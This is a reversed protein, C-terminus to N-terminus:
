KTGRENIKRWLRKYWPTAYEKMAGGLNEIASQLSQFMVRDDAFRDKDSIADIKEALIANVSNISSEVAAVVKDKDKKPTSLVERIARLEAILKEESKEVANMVASLSAPNVDLRTSSARAYVEWAIRIPDIELGNKVEDYLKEAADVISQKELGKNIGVRVMRNIPVKHILFFDNAERRM